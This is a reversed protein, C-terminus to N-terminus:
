VAVERWLRDVVHRHPQLVASTIGVTVGAVLLLLFIGNVIGVGPNAPWGGTTREAASAVVVLCTGFGVFLAATVADRLLGARLVDDWALELPSHAVQGRAIVRAAVLEFVAMAAPPLVVAAVLLLPSPRGVGLDPVGAIAAIVVAVAATVAVVVWGGWREIPAVYDGLTPTSARAVRPASPDSPAGAERWAALAVGAAHGLFAGGVVAMPAAPSEVRAVLTVVVGAAAGIGSGFAAWRRRRALRPSVASAVQPDLRLRVSRALRQADSAGDTRVASGLAAVVFAAAVIIAATM